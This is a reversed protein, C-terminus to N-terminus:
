RFAVTLAGVASRSPVPTKEDLRAWIGCRVRRV